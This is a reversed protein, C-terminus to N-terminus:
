TTGLLERAHDLSRASEPDGGLMRAIEEVRADGVLEEVATVARQAVTDKEVRFHADARSALQPLHTVVFVQHRQAVERLKQAVRGAVVGGVGADIEDFVLTPVRDVSALTAKLALMVRSLEGGSAIRALPAPEFGANLSARFEVSEGGGPGPEPLETLGVRFVAGPMGLEPLLPEVEESLRQGADRRARSLSAADALLAERAATQARRLDELDVEAGELEALEDALREGTGIVDLLEPGYKRKLRFLLDLRGRIEDLRLPDHDVATAYDGLRRGLDVVTHYVEDLSAADAALGPDIHGLRELTRQLESLRNSVAEDSGYLAEHLSGAENALEESHELRRAEEELRVDENEVIRAGQIESLQFRLFDSRSELERRRSEREELARALEQLRRHREAVARALESAGGYADLIRRQEAARLLTQHEHQGHLDVLDSGLEGVMTATAPSGNIWARNRGEAAVERKLILLGDDPEIGLRELRALVPARGAVDFVGEVVARSAGRRVVSSSAREGLLLSLAGVIISKGAGTEGSLVNLGPRMELSVYDLVAFDHIRLDILM